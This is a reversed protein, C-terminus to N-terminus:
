REWTDMPGSHLNMSAHRIVQAHRGPGHMLITTSVSVSVVYGVTFRIRALLRAVRYIM